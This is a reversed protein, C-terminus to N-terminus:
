RHNEIATSIDRNFENLGLCLRFVRLQGAPARNVDLHMIHMHSQVSPSTPSKKQTLPKNTSPSKRQFLETPLMFLNLALITTALLYTTQGSKSWIVVTPMFMIVFSLKILRRNMWLLSLVTSYM